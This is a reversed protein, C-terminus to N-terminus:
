SPLGSLYLVGLEPPLGQRSERPLDHIATHGQIYCSNHSFNVFTGDTGPNAEEQPPEEKFDNNKWNIYYLGEWKQLYQPKRNM